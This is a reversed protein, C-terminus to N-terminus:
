KKQLYINLVEGDLSANIEIRYKNAVYIATQDSTSEENREYDPEGFLHIIEKMTTKMREGPISVATVTGTTQNYLYTIEPYMVYPIGEIIGEEMYNPEAKKINTINIGIPYTSGLPIGQKAKKIDNKTLELNAFPFYNEKKESWISYWNDGSRGNHYAKGLLSEDFKLLSLKEKNLEWTTFVWENNENFLATQLYKQNITKIETGYMIPLVDASQVAKIEGDKVALFLPISQYAGASQLIAIVTKNGLNLPFVQESSDQFTFDDIGQLATQKYAVTADKEALFLSYHGKYLQNKGEYESQEDEAFLFLTYNREGDIVEFQFRANEKLLATDRKEKGEVKVVELNEKQKNSQKDQVINTLVAPENSCATLIGYLFLATVIYLYIKM